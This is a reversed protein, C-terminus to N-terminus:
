GALQGPAERVHQASRDSTAQPESSREQCIHSATFPALATYRTTNQINRHGLYALVARADHGDNALKYGCAHRLM